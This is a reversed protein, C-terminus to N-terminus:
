RDDENCRHKCACEDGEWLEAVMGTRRGSTIPEVAHFKHSVFFVADQLRHCATLGLQMGM